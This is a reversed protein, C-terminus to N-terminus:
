DDEPGDFEAKLEQEAAWYECVKDYYRERLIAYVGPFDLLESAPAENVIEALLGDFVEDTLGSYDM